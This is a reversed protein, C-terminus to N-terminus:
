SSTLLPLCWHLGHLLAKNSMGLTFVLYHLSVVTYCYRCPTGWLKRTEQVLQVIIAPTWWLQFCFLVFASSTFSCLLCSALSLRLKAMSAPFSSSIPFLPSLPTLWMLVYVNRRRIVSNHAREMQWEIMLLWDSGRELYRRNQLCEWRHEWGPPPHLWITGDRPSPPNCRHSEM